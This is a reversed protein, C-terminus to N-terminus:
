FGPINMGGTMESMEEKIKEDAKSKANNIAAVMLDELMEKDEMMEDSIEIKTVDFKGNMTVKAGGGGAAGMFEMSELKKQKDSMESQMKQMQAMLKKMDM